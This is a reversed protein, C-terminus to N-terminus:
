SARWSSISDSVCFRTGPVSWPRPETWISDWMGASTAVWGAALWWRSARLGLWALSGFLAVGAMEFVLWERGGGALALGVYILAAVVLGLALVRVEASKRARAFIAFLAGLVAGVLIPLLM